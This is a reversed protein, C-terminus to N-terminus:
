ACCFTIAAAPAVLGQPEGGESECSGGSPEDPDVIIVTWADSSGLDAYQCNGDAPVTVPLDALRWLNVTAEDCAEGIAASCSCESCGRTDSVETYMVTREAFDTGAPCPEDGETWICVGQEFPHSPRPVCMTDADCSGLAASPECAQVLGERQPDSVVPPESLADCDGALAVAPPYGIVRMDANDYSELFPQMEGTPIEYSDFMTVCTVGNQSLYIPYTEVVITGECEGGSPSGCDCACLAPDAVVDAFGQLTATDFGAHCGSPHAADIRAVPGQWGAPVNSVCVSTELDCSPEPDGTSDDSTTEVEGDTEESPGTDQGSETSDTPGESTSPDDTGTSADSPIPLNNATPEVCAGLLLPLCVAFISKM